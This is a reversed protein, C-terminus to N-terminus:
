GDGRLEDVGDTAASVASAIRGDNVICWYTDDDIWVCVYGDRMLRHIARTVRSRSLGAAAAIADFDITFWADDQLRRASRWQKAQAIELSQLIVADDRTLGAAQLDEISTCLCMM